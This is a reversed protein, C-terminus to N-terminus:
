NMGKELTNDSHMQWVAKNLIKFNPRWTWKKHQYGDCRLHRIYIYIYIYIYIIMNMNMYYEVHAIEEHDCSGQFGKFTNTILKKTSLNQKVNIVKLFPMFGNRGGKVIPMNTPCIPDQHPQWDIHFEDKSSFDGFCNSTIKLSM